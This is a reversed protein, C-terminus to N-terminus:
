SAPTNVRRIGTASFALGRLISILPSPEALCIVTQYGAPILTENVPCRGCWPGGQHPPMDLLSGSRTLPGRGGCSGPDPDERSGGTVSGRGAARDVPGGAPRPVGSRDTWPGIHEFVEPVPAAM